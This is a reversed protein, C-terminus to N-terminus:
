YESLNGSDPAQRHSSGQRQDCASSPGDIFSAPGAADEEDDDEISTDSFDEDEDDEQSSNSNSDVQYWESCCNPCILIGEDDHDRSFGNDSQSEVEADQEEDEADVRRCLEEDEDDGRSSKANSDDDMNESGCDPCIWIGDDDVKVSSESDSDRDSYSDQQPTRFCSQSFTGCPM